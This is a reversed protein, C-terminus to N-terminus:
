SKYLGDKEKVMGMELLRKLHKELHVREFWQTLPEPERYKSYILNKRLLDSFTGPQKLRQLLIRDRQYVVKEYARYRETLNEQFPGSHSTIVTQAPLARLKRISNITDNISSFDHGYFPGFATLTLDAAFVLKAEPIFFSLHGPTHGPTHFIELSLGGLNVSDGDKLERQISFEQITIEPYLKEMDIGGRLLGVSTLFRERNELFVTEMAHCWVPVPPLQSLTLRHDLHCHSLIVLDFGEKLCPALNALGMGADILLRLDKGKLYLCACYPFLSHNAGPVLYIQKNIEVM